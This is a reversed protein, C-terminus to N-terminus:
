ISDNLICVRSTYTLGKVGARHLQAIVEVSKLFESTKGSDGLEINMFVDPHVANLISRTPDYSQLQTMPYYDFEKAHDEGEDCPHDHDHDHCHDHGHDHHHSHGHGHCHSHTPASEREFGIQFQVQGPTALSLPGTAGYFRLECARRFVSDVGMLTMVPGSLREAQRRLIVGRSADPIVTQPGCGVIGLSVLSFAIILNKM